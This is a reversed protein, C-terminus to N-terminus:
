GDLGKELKDKIDPVIKEEPKNSLARKWQFKAELKRGVRWYADGLHDNIVPDQPRLEVARELERVADAYKKQRYFAWGLSDAIYGDNPALEVAKKIMAMARELHENREIWSYGLYNLVYPQEPKLDLAKLLDSESDKWRKARELVIGRSYFLSWHHSEPKGVIQIAKSYSDAAQDYKEGRRYVDGLHLHGDPLNPREKILQSLKKIAEDAKKLDNLLAAAQLRASWGYASEGRVSSYIKIAQELREEQELIDALIYQAVPFDPKLYLALRILAIATEQANRRRVSSGVDYLAEAVGDQGTKIQLPPTSKGDLRAMAKDMLRTASHEDQYLKYIARAKEKDGKREYLAGLLHTVRSSPPSQREAVQSLEKAADAVKGDLQLLLARHIGVLNSVGETKSMKDIAALADSPKGQAFRTWGLLLPKTLGSLGQDPLKDMIQAAKDYRKHKIHEVAITMRAITQDPEDKLFKEALKVAEAMRGEILHVIFAQRLLGPTEPRQKLAAGYYAAAAAFDGDNQAHLAALYNGVFTNKQLDAAQSDNTKAVAPPSVALCGALIIGALAPPGFFSIGSFPM